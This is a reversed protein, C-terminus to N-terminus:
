PAPRAWPTDSVLKLWTVGTTLREAPRYIITCEDYRAM